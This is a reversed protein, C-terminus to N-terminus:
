LLVIISLLNSLQKKLLNRVKYCYLLQCDIRFHNKKLLNRPLKPIEQDRRRSHNKRWV